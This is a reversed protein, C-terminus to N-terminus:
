PDPDTVLAPDSSHHLYFLLRSPPSSSLALIALAPVLSFQLFAVPLVETLTVQACPKPSVPRPLLVLPLSATHAVYPGLLSLQSIFTSSAPYSTCKNRVHLRYVCPLLPTSVPRRCVHCRHRTKRDSGSPCDACRVLPGSSEAAMPGGESALTGPSPIDLVTCILIRLQSSLNSSPLRQEAWPKILALALAQMYPRRQLYNDDRKMANEKHIIWSNIVGANIMGYFVCMPWRKNKRGCGYHACMQDFTDVGGKTKNYFEIVEPKHTPGISPQTHMSSILLVIKKKSAKDPLFSVLTLEKTFLFATTSPTRNEKVKMVQPIEKKVTGVLTMGCNELLDIALPVSTFWNDTTVNRNTHHYQKTLEKTFYQGFSQGDQRQTALKGLYPIGALLYKSHADNALVLKIGYKAPKNPIYMRFPCRGRFGLLQEDVTINESPVYLKKCNDIFIQWIKRIPAFKDMAQREQRTDPDDFRLCTLLFSFRGEFM